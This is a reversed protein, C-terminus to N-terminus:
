LQTWSYYNNFVFSPLLKLSQIRTCSLLLELYNIIQFESSYSWFRTNFNYLSQSELYKKIM